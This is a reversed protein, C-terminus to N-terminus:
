DDDADTVVHKVELAELKAVAQDLEEWMGAM